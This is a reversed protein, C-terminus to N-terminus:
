PSPPRILIEYRSNGSVTTELTIVGGCGLKLSSNRPMSGTAVIRKFANQIQRMAAPSIQEKNPLNDIQSQIANIVQRATVTYEPRRVEYCARRNLVDVSYGIRVCQCTEFWYRTIACLCAAVTIALILQRLSYRTLPITDM